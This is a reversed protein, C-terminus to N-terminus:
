PHVEQSRTHKSTRKAKRHRAPPRGANGCCSMCLWVRRPFRQKRRRFHAARAENWIRYEGNTLSVQVLLLSSFRHQCHHCVHTM